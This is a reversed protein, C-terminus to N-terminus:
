LRWYGGKQLSNFNQIFLEKVEPHFKLLLQKEENLIQMQEKSLHKTIKEELTREYKGKGNTWSEIALELNEVPNNYGTKPYEYKIKLEIGKSWFSYLLNIKYIFDKYYQFSTPFSGGLFIAVPTTKVIDALFLNKYSKFLYYVESLPINLDLVILNSRAIKNFARVAIFESLTHCVIPHICYISSPKRNILINIIFQWNDHLFDKDYIILRKNRHIPPMPLQKHDLFIRYYSDDLVHEIVKTKIGNNYKMKLFDKYITPKAITYDIISNKFPKYIGGTFTTGGFIINNARM